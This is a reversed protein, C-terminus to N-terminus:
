EWLGSELNPSGARHRTHRPVWSVGALFGFGSRKTTGEQEALIAKMEAPGWPIVLDGAAGEVNRPRRCDGQHALCSPDRLLPHPSLGGWRSPRSGLGSSARCAIVDCFLRAQCNPRQTARFRSASRPQGPRSAPLPSRGRDLGVSLWASSAANAHPRACELIVKLMAARRTGTAGHVQDLREGAVPLGSEDRGSGKPCPNLFRLGGRREVRLEQLM